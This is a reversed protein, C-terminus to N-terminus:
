AAIVGMDVLAKQLLEPTVDGEDGHSKNIFVKHTKKTGVVAEAWVQGAPPDADVNELTGDKVNWGTLVPNVAGEVIHDLPVVVTFREQTPGWVVELEGSAVTDTGRVKSYDGVEIAIVNTLTHETLYRVMDAIFQCPVDKGNLPSAGEAFEFAVLSDGEVKFFTAHMNDGTLLAKDIATARNWKMNPVGPVDAELRITKEPVKDHRHLSHIGFVNGMDHSDIIRLLARVHKSGQLRAQEEIAPLANYALSALDLDQQKLSLGLGPITAPHFVDKKDWPHNASRTTATAM